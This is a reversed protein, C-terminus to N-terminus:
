RGTLIAKNNKAKSQNINLMVAIFIMEFSPIVMFRVWLILTYVFLPILYHFLTFSFYKRLVSFSILVFVITTLYGYEAISTLIENHPMLLYNDRYKNTLDDINGYGYILNADPEVFLSYLVSLNAIFRLKNSGDNVEVVRDAGSNYAGAIEVNQLFWINFLFFLV